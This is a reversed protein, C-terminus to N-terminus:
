ARPEPVKEETLYVPPGWTHDPAERAAVECHGQGGDEWIRVLTTREDNVWLRYSLKGGTREVPGVYGGLADVAQEQLAVINAPAKTQRLWDLVYSADARSV